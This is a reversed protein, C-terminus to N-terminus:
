WRKQGRSVAKRLHDIFRWKRRIPHTDINSPLVGAHRIYFMFVEAYDEAPATAAYDTVHHYSDHEWEIDWGHSAGFADVFQSSRFLGRHTDALAHGFEHRLVDRLSVYSRTFHDRIKSLSVCPINIEGTSGYYQWGYACGVPVLFTDVREMPEDYLGLSKLERTVAYNASNLQSLSIITM